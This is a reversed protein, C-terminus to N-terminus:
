HFVQKLFDFVNINRINKRQLIINKVSISLGENTLIKAGMKNFGVIKGQVALQKSQANRYVYLVDDGVNVQQGLLDKM